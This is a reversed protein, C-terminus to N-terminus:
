FRVIMYLNYEANFVFYKYQQIIIISDLNLGISIKM